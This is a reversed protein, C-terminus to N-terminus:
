NRNLLFECIQYLVMHANSGVHKLFTYLFTNNFIYADLHVAYQGLHSVVPFSSGSDFPMICLM